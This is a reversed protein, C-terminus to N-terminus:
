GEDETQEVQQGCKDCHEDWWDERDTSTYSWRIIVSGNELDMTGSNLGRRRTLFGYMSPWVQKVLDEEEYSDLHDYMEVKFKFIQDPTRTM